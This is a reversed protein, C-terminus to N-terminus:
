KVLYSRSAIQLGVGQKWYSAYLTIYHGSDKATILKTSGERYLYTSDRFWMFTLNVGVPPKCAKAKLTSGVKFKGIIVTPCSVKIPPKKAAAANNAYSFFGWNIENSTRKVTSYGIKTAILEIYFKHGFDSSSPRYVSGTIDAVPLGDRYWNTQLSVGQDWGWSNVQLINGSHRLSVGQNQSMSLAPLILYKQSVLNVEASGVRSWTVRVQINRGVEKESPSYMSQHNTNEIVQGDLLWVWNTANWGMASGIWIFLNSNSRITGDIRPIPLQSVSQNPLPSPSQSPTSSSSGVVQSFNSFKTVSNYGPKSITVKLRLKAGVDTVKVLYKDATEGILETENKIWQFALSGAPWNSTVGSITQGSLIPASSIAVQSTPYTRILQCQKMAQVATAAMAPDGVGTAGALLRQYTSECDAAGTLSNITSEEGILAMRYDAAAKLAISRSNFIKYTSASTFTRYFDGGATDLNSRDSSLSDAYTALCTKFQTAASTITSLETATQISAILVIEVAECRGAGHAPALPALASAAMSFAM